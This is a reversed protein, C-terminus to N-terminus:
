TGVTAHLIGCRGDFDSKLRPAYAGFFQFYNTWGSPSAWQITTVDQAMALDLVDSTMQVMLVNGTALVDSFRVAKIAPEALVREMLTREGLAKFDQRFRWAYAGPIYVTFPGYRRHQTELIRVMELLDNLIDQPTVSNSSWDGITHLARQGFNTLGSITYTQGNSVTSGVNSGYFVLKESARAVSRAAEVGTSVDLGAGRTRSALLARQGIKFPKQIIPIPVGNLGFEQRDRDAETEGDMTIEADTIESANEWESILVGLGGVPVVLGNSRLDDMIVLRERYSELVAADIRSWEEKRLTANAVLKERYIPQGKDDLQGTNVVVVAEGRANFYPRNALVDLSGAEASMGGPGMLLSGVAAAVHTKM